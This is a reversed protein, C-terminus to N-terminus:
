LAFVAVVLGDLSEDVVVPTGGYNLRMVNSTDGCSIVVSVISFAEPSQSLTEEKM